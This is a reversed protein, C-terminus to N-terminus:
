AGHQYVTRTPFPIDVGEADFAEKIKKTLDFKVGWYDGAACWVRTTLDVSSDGLNGVVVLPEPAKHCRDDAAIAAKIISMAKDIDADYAIGYVMDVRRTSHASYNKLPSGWVSSNPLIIQVNDGTALETTFLTLDKVTGSMGNLEVFQGVRFPRFVLLMVGAAVNSLTGQLALGIALSAAGLVAILSTTEVGFQGLVALVTAIIVLYRVISGFFGKLMEDSNLPKDLAKITFARARGAIWFGLILILVAGIISLGHEVFLPVLTDANDRMGEPLAATLSEPM